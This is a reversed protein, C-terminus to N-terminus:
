ELKDHLGKWNDTNLCVNKLFLNQASIVYGEKKVM